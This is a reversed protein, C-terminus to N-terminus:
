FRTPPRGIHFSVGLYDRINRFLLVMLYDLEREISNVWDFIYEIFLDYKNLLMENMLM